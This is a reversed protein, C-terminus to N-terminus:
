IKRLSDMDSIDIDIDIDSIERLHNIENTLQTVEFCLKYNELKLKRKILCKKIGKSKKDDSSDDILYGYPKGSLGLFKKLIKGILEDSM